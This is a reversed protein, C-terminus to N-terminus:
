LQTQVANRLRSLAWGGWRSEAPNHAVIMALRTVEGLLLRQSNNQSGRGYGSIFSMWLESLGRPVVYWYIPLFDIEPIWFRAQEFDIIGALRVRDNLRRTRVNCPNLDFHILVARESDSILGVHEELWRELVIRIQPSVLNRDACLRVSHLAEALTYSHLPKGENPDDGSLVGPSDSTISHLLRLARGLEFYVGKLDPRGLPQEDCNEPLPPSEPGSQLMSALNADGVETMVISGGGTTEPFRSLIRPVPLELGPFRQRIRDLASCEALYKATKNRVTIHVVRDQGRTVHYVTTGDDSIKWADPQESTLRIYALRNAKIANELTM